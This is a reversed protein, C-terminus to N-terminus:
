ESISLCLAKYSEVKQPEKKQEMLFQQHWLHELEHRVVQIRERNTIIVKKVQNRISAKLGTMGYSM